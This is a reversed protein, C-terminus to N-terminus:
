KRPVDTCMHRSHIMNCGQVILLNNTVGKSPCISGVTWGTQVGIHLIRCVDTFFQEPYLEQCWWFRMSKQENWRMVIGLMKGFNIGLPMLDFLCVYMCVSTFLM